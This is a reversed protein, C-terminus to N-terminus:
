KYGLRMLEERVLQRSRSSVLGVKRLGGDDLSALEDLGGAVAGSMSRYYHGLGLSELLEFVTSPRQQQTQQQQQLLPSPSTSSHRVIPQLSSQVAGASFPVPSFTPPHQHATSPLVQPFGSVSQHCFIGGGGAIGYVGAAPPGSVYLKDVSVPLVTTMTDATAAATYAAGSAAASLATSAELLDPQSSTRLRALRARTESSLGAYPSSQGIVYPSSQSIVNFSSATSAPATAVASTSSGHPLYPTGLPSSLSLSSTLSGASIGTASASISVGAAPGMGGRGGAVASGNGGARGLAGPLAGISAAKLPVHIRRMAANSICSAVSGPGGGGGGGVVAPDLKILPESTSQSKGGVDLEAVFGISNETSRMTSMVVGGDAQPDGAAAEQHLQQQQQLSSLVHQHMLTAALPSAGGAGVRFSTNRSSGGSADRSGTGGGCSGLPWPSVAGSGSQQSGAHLRQLRTVGAGYPGPMLDQVLSADNMHRRSGHSSSGGAPTTAPGATNTVSASMHGVAATGDHGHLASASTPPIPFSIAAPGVESVLSGADGSTVAALQQTKPPPLLQTRRFRSARLRSTSLHSACTLIYLSFLSTPSLLLQHASHALIFRSISTSRYVNAYLDVQTRCQPTSTHHVSMHASYLM